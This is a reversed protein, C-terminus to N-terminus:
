TTQRSIRANSRPHEEFPCIQVKDKHINHCICLPNRCKEVIKEALRNNVRNCEPAMWRGTTFVLTIFTSKEIDIVRQNYKDKKRKRM